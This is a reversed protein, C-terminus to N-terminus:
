YGAWYSPYLLRRGYVLDTKQPNQNLERKGWLTGLSGGGRDPQTPSWTRAAEALKPNGCTQFTEQMSRDGFERYAAILADENGMDGREVFFIYGGAVAANDRDRLAALLAPAARRDASKALV